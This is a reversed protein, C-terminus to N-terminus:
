GNLCRSRILAMRKGWIIRRYLRYQARQKAEPIAKEHLYIPINKQRQLWAAMGTHDEHIHTLAVQEIHKEQFFKIIPGKM